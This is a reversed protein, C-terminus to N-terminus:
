EFVSELIEGMEPGAEVSPRQPKPRRDAIMWSADPLDSVQVMGGRQDFCKFM